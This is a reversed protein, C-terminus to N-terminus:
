YSRRTAVATFPDFDYQWYGTTLAPDIEVMDLHTVGKFPQGAYTIALNLAWGDETTCNGSADHFFLSASAGNNGPSVTYTGTFTDGACLTGDYNLDVKGTVGGAGDFTLTGVSITYGTDSAKDLFSFTGKLTGPGTAHAVGAIGAAGLVVSLMLAVLGKKVM